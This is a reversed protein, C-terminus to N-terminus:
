ALSQLESTHEESRTGILEALGPWAGCVLCYGREWRDLDTLSHGQTAAEWLIPQLALQVLEGLATADVGLSAASLALASRDDQLAPVALSAVDVNTVALKTAAAHAPTGVLATESLNQAVHALESALDGDDFALSGAALLPEGNAIAREADAATLSLDVSPASGGLLQALREDHFAAIPGLGADAGALERWRARAEEIELPTPIRSTSRPSRPTSCSM